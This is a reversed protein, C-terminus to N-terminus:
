EDSREVIIDVKREVEEILQDLEDRVDAVAIYFGIRTSDNVARTIRDAKKFHFRYLIIKENNELYDLGDIEKVKGCKQKIDFFKLVAYGQHIKLNMKEPALGLTDRVLIAYTNVGTIKPVIKSSIFNGGGRAGIEILVFEKGDFKYEAHTLGFALGSKEVYLDNQRKLMEYDYEDDDPSFYLECAVNQNYLFHKKKSVALCYHKKGVVIGDVTFERGEIYEECLIEDGGRTYHKTENYNKRIDDESMVTFVGRSSNSNLPKMIMKKSKARCERYFWIAERETRCEKFDPCPFGNERCFKRMLLKNTYLQALENGISSAGLKCNIYAVTPTALDCEDSMVALADYKWVVQLCREMDLIDCLEHYRACSFAPATENPDVCVVEYGMSQIKNILTIQSETGPIVMIINKM